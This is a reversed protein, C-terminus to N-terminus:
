WFFGFALFGMITGLIGSMLFSKWFSFKSAYAMGFAQLNDAVDSDMRRVTNINYNAASKVDEISAANPNNPTSSDAEVSSVSSDDVFEAPEEVIDTIFPDTMSSARSLESKRRPPTYSSM